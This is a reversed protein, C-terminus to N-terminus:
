VEWYVGHKTPNTVVYVIVSSVALTLEMGAPLATLSTSYKFPVLMIYMHANIAHHDFYVHTKTISSNKSTEYIFM